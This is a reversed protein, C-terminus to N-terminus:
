LNVKELITSNVYWDEYAEQTHNLLVVKNM